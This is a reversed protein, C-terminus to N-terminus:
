IWIDIQNSIIKAYEGDDNYLVGQGNDGHIMVFDHITFQGYIVIAEQKNRACYYKTGIPYRRKCEELIQNM